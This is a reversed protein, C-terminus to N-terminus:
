SYGLHAAQDLIYPIFELTAAFDDPDAPTRVATAPDPRTQWVRDILPHWRPNLHEKAWLAAARKSKVCGCHLTQLMRCYSILIFGQYFRNRYHDPDALIENGWDRLTAFVEQKLAEVPIPDMLTISQPGYLPIGNERLTWRVVVTNCHNSQVIVISGHDVYWVPSGAQRYDALVDLPFYSGELHKAWHNDQQYLRAHMAQLQLAESETLPRTTVTIFDVDSYDDFDGVAFSGQLYVALLLDGLIAETQTVLQYLITNLEPYPTPSFTTM